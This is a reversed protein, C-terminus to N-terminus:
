VVERSPIVQGSLRWLWDPRAYHCIGALYDSLIIKWLIAEKNLKLFEVHCWLGVSGMPNEMEEALDKFWFQPRPYVWMTKCKDWNHSQINDWKQISLILLNQRMNKMLHLIHSLIESWKRCLGWIMQQIFSRRGRLFVACIIVISTMVLVEDGKM